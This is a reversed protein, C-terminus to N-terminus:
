KLPDSSRMTILNERPLTSIERAWHCLIKMFLINFLKSVVSSYWSAKHNHHLKVVYLYADKLLPFEGLNELRYCICVRRHKGWALSIYRITLLNKNIQYVHTCKLLHPINRFRGSTRTHSATNLKVVLGGGELFFNFHFSIFIVIENNLSPSGSHSETTGTTSDYEGRLLTRAASM